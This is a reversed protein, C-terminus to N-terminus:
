STPALILFYRRRRGFAPASPSGIFSKLFIDMLRMVFRKPSFVATSSKERSSPSPSNTVKRPGEPQPLDVARLQMVPSMGIVLPSIQISSSHMSSERILTGGLLALEAHDELVVRKERVEGDELVHGEPQLKAAVQPPRLGGLPDLVRQLEDVELAVRRLKGRLHGAALLLADGDRAADDKLRAKEEEVLRQGVEVRLQADLQAVLELRQVLAQLDGRDVDRVVLGLRERERVPDDDQAGARMWCIPVGAWTKQRGTLRKTASKMPKLFM